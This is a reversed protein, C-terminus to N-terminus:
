PFVEAGGFDVGSLGMRTWVVATDPFYEYTGFEGDGRLIPTDPRDLRWVNRSRSVWVSLTNVPIGLDAAAKAAPVREVTALRVASARFEATYKRKKTGKVM